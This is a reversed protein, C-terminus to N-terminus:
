HNLQQPTIRWRRPAAPSSPNEGHAFPTPTPRAQARGEFWSYNDPELEIQPNPQNIRSSAPPFSGVGNVAHYSFPGEVACVVSGGDACRRPFAFLPDHASETRALETLLAEAGKFDQESFAVAAELQPIVPLCLQCAM